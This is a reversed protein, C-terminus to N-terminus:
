STDVSDTADTVVNGQSDLAGAPVSAEELFGQKIMLKKVKNALRNWM